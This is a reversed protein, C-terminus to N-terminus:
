DEIKSWVHQKFPYILFLTELFPHNVECWCIVGLGGLQIHVSSAQQVFFSM